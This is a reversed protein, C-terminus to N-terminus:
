RLSATRQHFTVTSVFVVASGSFTDPTLGLHPEAEEALALFYRAHREAVTSREEPALQEAAYERLTELLRYRRTEGDAEVLVLSSNLLGQGYAGLAGRDGM